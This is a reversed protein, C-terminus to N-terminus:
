KQTIIQLNFTIAFFGEKADKVPTIFGIEIDFLDHTNHYSCLAGEVARQAKKVGNPRQGQSGNKAFITIYAGPAKNYDDNVHFNNTLIVAHNYDVGDISHGKFVTFGLPKLVPDIVGFLVDEVDYNDM